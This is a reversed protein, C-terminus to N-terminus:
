GKFLHKTCSMQVPCNASCVPYKMDTLYNHINSSSTVSFRKYIQSCLMEILKFRVEFANPDSLTLLFFCKYSIDCNLGIILVMLMIHNHATWLNWSSFRIANEKVQICPCNKLVINSAMFIKNIHFFYGFISKNKFFRGSITGIYGTRGM